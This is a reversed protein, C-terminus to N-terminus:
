DYSILRMPPNVIEQKFARMKAIARRSVAQRKPVRVRVTKAAQQPQRAPSQRFYRQVYLWYAKRRAADFLILIVPM